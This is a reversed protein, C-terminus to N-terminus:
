PAGGNPQTDLDAYQKMMQELTDVFSDEADYLAQGILRGSAKEKCLDCQKQDLAVLEDPPKHLWARAVRSGSSYSVEGPELPLYLPCKPGSMGFLSARRWAEASPSESLFAKAQKVNLRTISALQKVISEQLTLSFSRRWSGSPRTSREQASASDVVGAIGLLLM